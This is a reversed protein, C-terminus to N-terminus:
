DQPYHVEARITPAGVGWPQVRNHLMWEVSHGFPTGGLAAAANNLTIGLPTQEAPVGKSLADLTRQELINTLAIAAPRHFGGKRIADALIAGGSGPPQAEGRYVDSVNIQTGAPHDAPQYMVVTGRDNPVRYRYAGSYAPDEIYGGEPAYNSFDQWSKEVQRNRAVERKGRLPYNAMDSNNNSPPKEPPLVTYQRGQDDVMPVGSEPANAPPAIAISKGRTDYVVNQPAVPSYSRGARSIAYTDVGGADRVLGDAPVSPLFRFGPNYQAPVQEPAPRPMLKSSVWAPGPDAALEQRMQELRALRDAPIAVDEVAPASRAVRYAAVPSENPGAVGAMGRSMSDAELSEVGGALARGLGPSLWNGGANVGYLLGQNLADASGMLRDAPSLVAAVTPHAAAYQPTLLHPAYYADGMVQLLNKTFNSM